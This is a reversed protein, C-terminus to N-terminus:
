GATWWSWNTPTIMIVPGDPPQERYPEYKAALARLATDFETGAAVITATGDVRVWFLHSWDDDYRDVLVSVRPDSAINSLRQLRRTSKPKHDIATVITTGTVAFTIPVVHPAGDPRVTALRAIPSAAFRDRAAALDM